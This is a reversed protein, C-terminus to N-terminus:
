YFKIVCVCFFFLYFHLVSQLPYIQNQNYHLTCSCRIGLSSHLETPKNQMCMAISLKSAHGANESDVGDRVEPVILLTAKGEQEWHRGDTVSETM